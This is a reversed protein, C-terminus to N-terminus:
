DEVTILLSRRVPASRRESTAEVTVVYRGPDVDLLSIEMKFGWRGAATTDDAPPVLIAEERKVEVGATDTVIASVTLVEATMRADNSYVETFLSVVDGRPFRRIATPNMDHASRAAVDEFLTLNSAISSAALTIGSLALAEDLTPIELPVVVSGLAGDPQDAVLRLEYRGPPLEVREVFRLGTEETRARTEPTPNLTFVKYEGKQLAGELDFIQYSVTMREGDSLRLAGAIQGGIVVTSKGDVGKFPASFVDITLGRVPLPMRLADRAATSVGEPLPREVAAPADPRPAFYGKRARVTLGPRKLRVRIDHFKGDRHEIAPTYGLLYYTSTDRVIEKYMGTLNNTGVVAVGGTDEAVMRLAAQRQIDSVPELGDGALRAITLGSPDIPYVSVNNRNAAGIADRYAALLAPASTRVACLQMPDVSPCLRDTPDFDIQGGLWLIAKRRGSMSGLRESLTEIARYTDMNRRVMEPGTLDSQAGSLGRGYRDISAIIRQKSTTFTQSDTFTGQVHVVAVFDGAAVSEEVFQRAFAKAYFDYTAGRREQGGPNATSPSDMLLIYVRGAPMTNSIVDPEVVSAPDSAASVVDIPLDISSFSRIDQRQGDELLEFDDQTLGRVFRGERDTVFVDVEIARVGSRFTPNPATAAAQDGDSALAALRTSSPLMAASVVGCAILACVRCSCSSSTSVPKQMTASVTAPM